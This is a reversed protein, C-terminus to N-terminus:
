DIAVDTEQTNSKNKLQKWIGIAGFWLLFLDTSFGGLSNGMYNYIMYLSIILMFWMNLRVGRVYFVLYTSFIANFTPILSLWWEYTYIGIWIYIITLGIVRYLNKNYKLAIINKIADFWNIISASMLWLLGYHVGFIVSVIATIIIFKNDKCYLFNYIALGFAIFGLSQNIPDNLFTTVFQQWLSLLFDM